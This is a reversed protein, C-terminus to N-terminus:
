NPAKRKEQELSEATFHDSNFVPNINYFMFKQVNKKVNTCATFKIMNGVDAIFRRDTAPPSKNPSNVKYIIKNSKQVYLHIKKSMNM